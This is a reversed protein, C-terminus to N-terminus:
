DTKPTAPAKAAAVTPGRAIASSLQAVQPCGKACITQLKQLNAQARATAGLEVMAEGQVAIANPDNPELLLAKSTMRVAKGYLHQREAVRAIDVFAWRNRPDATLAAELSDEAQELKGAALLEEGQRQFVASKPLIQDDARQGAAPPAFAVSVLSILATAVASLRM